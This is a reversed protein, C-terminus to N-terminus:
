TFLFNALNGGVWVIWFKAATVHDYCVVTYWHNREYHAQWREQANSLTEGPAKLEMACGAFHGIPYRGIPAKNRGLYQFDWVGPRVGMEKNLLVDIPVQYTKGTQRNRRTVKRGTGTSENAAHYVFALDPLQGEMALLSQVLAKHHAKEIQRPM